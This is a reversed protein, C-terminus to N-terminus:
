NGTFDLNVCGCYFHNSVLAKGLSYTGCDNMGAHGHSKAEKIKSSELSKM